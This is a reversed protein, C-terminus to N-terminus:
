ACASAGDISSGGGGSSVVVRVRGLNQVRAFPTNPDGERQSTARLVPFYTGPQSFSCTVQLHVSPRLTGIDASVPYNGAGLFDWEAGVVQGAGPPVQILASFTVPQGVAVDVRVGGNVQLDVVPQIGKRAGAQDPVQVQGDVVKYNTSPPPKVGREVWASLDRLDQQLAGQYSVTRANAANGVPTAGHQAFDQFYVRFQDDFRNGLAQQVKKAYEDAGFAFADVDMLSEQVIMKGNIKGTM